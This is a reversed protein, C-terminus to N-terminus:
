CEGCITTALETSEEGPQSLSWSALRPREDRMEHNMRSGVCLLFFTPITTSLKNESPM